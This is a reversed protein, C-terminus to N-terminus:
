RRARGRRRARRRGAGSEDYAAWAAIGFHVISLGLLTLLVTASEAQTLTPFMTPTAFALVLCLVGVFATRWFLYSDM